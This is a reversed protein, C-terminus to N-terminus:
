SSARSVWLLAAVAFLGAGLALAVVGFSRDGRSRTAPRPEDSEGSERDKRRAGLARAALFPRDTVLFAGTLALLLGEWAYLDVLSRLREGPSAVLTFWAAELSAIAVVALALRGRGM